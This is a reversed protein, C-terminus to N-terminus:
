VLSQMSCVNSVARQSTQGDVNVFLSPPKPFDRSETQYPGRPRRRPGSCSVDLLNALRTGWLIWCRRRNGVPCGAGNRQRRSMGPPASGAARVDVNSGRFPLTQYVPRRAEQSIVGRRGGSSTRRSLEWSSIEGMKGGCRPFFLDALFFAHGSPSPATGPDSWVEVCSICAERKRAPLQTELADIGRRGVPLVLVVVM